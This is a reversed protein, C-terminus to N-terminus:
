LTIQHSFMRSVEIEVKSAEKLGRFEFSSVISPLVSLMITEEKLPKESSKHPLTTPLTAFHRIKIEVTRRQLYDITLPIHPFTKKIQQLHKLDEGKELREMEDKKLSMYQYSHSVEDLARLNIQTCNM